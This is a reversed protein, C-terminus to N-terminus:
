FCSRLQWITIHIQDHAGSSTRCWSKSVSQGDTAIHSRSRALWDRTSAPDFVEVTARRTTPPSSFPLRWNSVTLYPLLNWPVWSELIVASALALLLQFRCVRGRTLFLAGCWCVRLQTVTIFIKDYDGSPHKTWFLSASEGDTTVYSESVSGTM